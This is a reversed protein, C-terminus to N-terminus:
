EQVLAVNVGNLASDAPLLELNPVFTTRIADEAAAQRMLVAALTPPGAPQGCLITWTANSQADCDVLLVRQGREALGVALCTATTTKSTGGKNSALIIRRM